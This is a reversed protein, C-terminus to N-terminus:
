LAKLCNKLCNERMTTTHPFVHPTLIQLIQLHVSIPRLVCSSTCYSFLLFLFTFPFCLYVNLSAEATSRSNVETIECCSM